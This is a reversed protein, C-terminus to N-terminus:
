IWRRVHKKYSLWKKGFAQKLQKEERRIFLDTLFLEIVTLVVGSPSGVILVAGLFVFVNGGLYLPNRSYRFPGGTILTNQPNLKIVKLKNKELYNTYWSYNHGLFKAILEIGLETTKGEIDQLPNYEVVDVGIVNCREGIFQAITTIERYSLGAKNPMGAGPAYLSDIADFDLSVWINKVQSQLKDILKFLPALGYSLVDFMGYCKLKEKKMLDLEAQDWDSKNYGIHLLNKSSIKISSDVISTLRKDGFGMLSALHMGHINGTITTKDTNMDGHTDFYILGIDGKTEVSAASIPGLCVTHDGGLIIAKQKQTLIDKTKQASREAVRVIEELYKLKPNGVQLQERNACSINGLDEILLGSGELKEKIHEYRFANPGIDVGLNEAGLDLPVGILSVKNKVIKM